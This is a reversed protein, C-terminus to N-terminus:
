AAPPRQRAIGRQGGFGRRCRALCWAGLGAALLVNVGPEPVVSLSQMQPATLATGNWYAFEDLGGDFVQGGTYLGGLWAFANQSNLTPTASGAAVGNM